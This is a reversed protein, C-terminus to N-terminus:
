KLFFVYFLHFNFFTGTPKISQTTHLLMENYGLTEMVVRGDASKGVTIETGVESVSSLSDFSGAGTPIKIPQGEYAVPKIILYASNMHELWFQTSSIVM